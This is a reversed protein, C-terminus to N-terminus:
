DFMDEQLSLDENFVVVESFIDFCVKKTPELLSFEKNKERSEQFFYLDKTKQKLLYSLTILHIRKKLDGKYDHGKNWYMENHEDSWWLAYDPCLGKCVNLYDEECTLTYERQYGLWKDNRYDFKVINIDLMSRSISKCDEPWSLSYVSKVLEKEGNEVKSIVCDCWVM